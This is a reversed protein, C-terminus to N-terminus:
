WREPNGIRTLSSLGAMAALPWSRPERASCGRRRRVFHKVFSAWTDIFDSSLLRPWRPRSYRYLEILFRKWDASKGADHLRYFALTKEIKRVKGRAGMRAFLEFDFIFQYDENLPGCAELLRRRFFVTPQPLAHVYEWYRAVREPAQMEGFYLGTRATGHNALTMRDFADVYLANGYVLDLEPDEAFAKGIEILAGHALMDDSCLWGLVEGRALALGKNIAHAPGRDKEVACHSLRSGYARLIDASGDTSGGDFALVQLSAYNQAFVSDIARPLFPAQNFSPMVVSIAPLRAAAPAQPRPWTPDPLPLEVTDQSDGEVPFGDANGAVSRLGEHAAAFAVKAPRKVGEWASGDISDLLTEFLYHVAGPTLREGSHQQSVAMIERLREWGGLRTKTQGHERSVALCENIILARHKNGIRLIVDWDMAYRLETRLGGVENWADRSFFTAPQLVYDIGQALAQRNLALHRRTFPLRQGSPEKQRLGNGIHLGHDPHRVRAHAVRWLAGPLLLDDANLWGVLDGHTHALGENIAAGQGGDPQSRWFALHRSFAEIVERSQDTSGGDMVVIELAPYDQSVLSELAQGLYSGQNLCPVVIAFRPLTTREPKLDREGAPM